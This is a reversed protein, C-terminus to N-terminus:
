RGQKTWEEHDIWQKEANSKGNKLEDKKCLHPEVEDKEFAIAGNKFRAERIKKSIKNLTQLEEVYDGKSTELVEQVDEYSFRRKSHIM